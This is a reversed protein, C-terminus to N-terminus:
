SHGSSLESVTPQNDDTKDENKPRFIITDEGPFIRTRLSYFKNSCPNLDIFLYRSSAVAKQFVDLFYKAKHPFVQRGFRLLQESDRRNEFLVFYHINLSLTRMVKDKEFITHGLVCITANLHHSSVCILEQAWVNNALEHLLDDLVCIFHDRSDGRIEMLDDRSPIGKHFTINKISRQMETFIPQWVSGYCYLTCFPPEKFMVAAHELLRKVFTTKGSNTPGCIMCSTPSELQLVPKGDELDM